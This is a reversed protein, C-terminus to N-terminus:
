NHKTKEYGPYTEIFQNSHTDVSRCVRDEALTKEDLNLAQSTSIQHRSLAMLCREQNMPNKVIKVSEGEDPEM